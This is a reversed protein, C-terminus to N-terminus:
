NYNSVDERFIDHFDPVNADSERSHLLRVQQGSYINCLDTPRHSDLVFFIVDDEADLEDMLNVTGGCNIFLFYKVDKCNERYAEKLDDLTNVVSLSYIIQKSHLLSQLIKCTCISDIDYHVM